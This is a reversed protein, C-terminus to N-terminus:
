GGRGSQCGEMHPTRGVALAPSPEIAVQRGGAQRRAGRGKSVAVEGSSVQGPPPIPLRAPKLYRHGCPQSPELGKRPVMRWIIASILTPTASKPSVRNVLSPMIRSWRCSRGLPSSRPGTTAMSVSVIPSSWRRSRSHRTWSDEPSPLACQTCIARGPGSPVYRSLGFRRRRRSSVLVRLIKWKARKSRAASRRASPTVTAGTTQM